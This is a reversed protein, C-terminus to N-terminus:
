LMHLQAHFWHLVGQLWIVNGCSGCGGFRKRAVDRTLTMISALFIFDGVSRVLIITTAVAPLPTTRFRFQPVFHRLPPPVGYVSSCTYSGGISVAM